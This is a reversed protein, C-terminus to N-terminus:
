AIEDRIKKLLIAPIGDPGAASNEDMDDIAEKIDEVTIEIDNLDETEENQFPNGKIKSSIKSFQSLFELKLKECIVEGEDIFEGNEKFPGVKNKRNNQNNFISYFIKPNEKMCEIAHKESEHKKKQKTKILDKETELIKNGINRKKEKSHAKHKERKLM